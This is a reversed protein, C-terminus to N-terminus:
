KDRKDELCSQEGCKSYDVRLERQKTSQATPTYSEHDSSDSTTDSMTRDSTTSRHADVMSDSGADVPSDSGADVPSDSASSETDSKFEEESESSTVDDVDSHHKGLVERAIAKEDALVNQEMAGPESRRFFIIFSLIVEPCKYTAVM